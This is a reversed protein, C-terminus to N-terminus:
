SSLLVVMGGAVLKESKRPEGLMLSLAISEPFTGHKMMAMLGHCPAKEAAPSSYSDLPSWTFVNHIM